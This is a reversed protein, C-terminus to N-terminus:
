DVPAGALCAAVEATSYKNETDGALDADVDATLDDGDGADESYIQDM